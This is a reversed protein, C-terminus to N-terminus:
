FTKLATVLISRPPGLNREMVDVYRAQLLNSVKAQVLMDFLRHGLRLDVVSFASRRDLPFALVQQVRSRYRIDLGVVGKWLDLTGAANHASRYPLPLGTLLDKTDLYSYELQLSMADGLLATRTSLDVGRVRARQVNQFQFEFPHGSVSGPGILGYYDSQFLAGDIWWREGLMATAGVESSWAREGKLQPNPVVLFGSQTASVFQEIASPGRYGRAISLRTSVNEAPHFVIGVKPNLAAETSTPAGAGSVHHYDLRAGLSATTRPTLTVEDQVYAGLDDLSPRGVFTSSQATDTPSKGLFNSVVGTRALEGGLTITHRPSPSLSLRATTGLRTARHYNQNDHYHNQVADHELYPQFQLQTSGTAVPTITAGASLKAARDWDNITAPPVEYPHDPSLWTFFNGEHTLSWVAFATMPHPSDAPLSLKTRLLWRSSGDDERYGDSSEHGVFLRAGLAGVRRSHQLDVGRFDLRDSTFRYQSPVDYVGYHAKIITQPEQAIPSTIVNVVGGLANSGYLASYAGKVVEIREIDLLPLASFDIQGGDASLVPHGDLLMLVRSGVGGSVGTAGRIDLDGNNLTVGSVFPLAGAITILNRQRLDQQTIVAESAPAEGIGQEHQSATVTVEPLQVIAHRLAFDVRRTAGAQVIVDGRRAPQYGIRFVRITYRSPTVGTLQYGGHADTTARLQTGPLLVIADAVPAGTRADSV